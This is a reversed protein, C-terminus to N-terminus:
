ASCASAPGPTWATSCPARWRRWSPVPGGPRPAHALPHHHRLRRLAGEGHGDTRGAGGGAAQGGGRRGPPRGGPAAPCPRGPGRRLDGRSGRVPAGAGTGGAPRRAGVVPRPAPPGRGPGVLRGARRTAGRGSRRGHAGGPPPAARRHGAGGGVARHGAAPPPLRAGGRRAGRRGRCRARHRGPLVDAEGPAVGAQGAAEVPGGGGRLRPGDRRARSRPRPARDARSPRVPAASRGRRPLGRRALHGGGTPHVRRVGRPDAPQLGHLPGHRRARVGGGPVAPPGAGVAHGLPGRLRPGRVLVLGGRGPRWLRGRHGPPRVALPRPPDRRVRLVCGHRRAPDDAGVPPRGRVSQPLAPAM